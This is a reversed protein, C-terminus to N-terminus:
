VFLNLLKKRGGGNSSEFNTTTDSEGTYFSTADRGRKDRGAAKGATLKTTHSLNLGSLLQNDKGVNIFPPKSQPWMNQVTCAAACYSVSSEDCNPVLVGANIGPLPRLTGGALVTEVAAQCVHWNGSWLLGVAGNVPNM